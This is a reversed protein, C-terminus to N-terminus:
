YMITSKTINVYGPIILRIKTVKQNGRITKKLSVSCFKLSNNTYRNFSIHEILSSRKLKEGKVM